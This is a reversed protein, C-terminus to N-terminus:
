REKLAATVAAAEGRLAELEVRGGARAFRAEDCRQFLARVRERLAPDLAAASPADLVDPTISAPPVKLALGLAEQLVRTLTAFFATADGARAAHELAATAHHLARGARRRRHTEPDSDERERRLRWARAAAWGAVPVLLLAPFWPRLLLPVGIAAPAGLDTRIHALGGPTAASQAPEPSVTGADALQPAPAAAATAAPRVVLPVAPLPVTQYRGRAPSFFTFAAAPIRDLSAQEPVLVQEFVKRGSLGTPDGPEFKAVAPYKRFAQWAPPEPMQMADFNGHGTVELRLTVPDGVAVNTPGATLAAQFEGVAGSFGPPVNDAPLPRVVVEAPDSVLDLPVQEAFNGFFDSFGGFPDQRRVPVLLRADTATITQTGPKVATIPAQWTVRQYLANNTRVSIQRGSQQLRGVTFGEASLSAPRELRGAQAYLHIEAVASEGAYFERKPLDLLLFATRATEAQRARAADNSAVVRLTVPATRLVGQGTNISLPPITFEGTRAPRVAFTFRQEVGPRGNVLSFSTGTGRTLIQLGDVAPTPIGDRGTGGTITVVLEANEGLAITDPTLTATAEAARTGVAALLGLFLLLSAAARRM